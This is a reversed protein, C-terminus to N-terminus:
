SSRLRARQCCLPFGWKDEYGGVPSTLWNLLSWDLGGWVADKRNTPRNRLVIFRKIAAILLYNHCVGLM